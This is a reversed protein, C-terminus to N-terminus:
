VKCSSLSFTADLLGCSGFRSAEPAVATGLSGILNLTDMENM